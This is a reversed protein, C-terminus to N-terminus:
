GGTVKEALLVLGLVVLALGALREAGERVGASLRTGLRLGLQSLVFAQAGILVIVPVLPLRLLGLTFGIALEDLSISLGLAVAGWGSVDALKRADAEEGDRELLTYVGFALLVGVALYDAASGIARGLPAGLAVGILPMAAEFGAMLLSVRLRRHSPLGAVGLAAAVAFTDLGLPLVLAVLKLLV